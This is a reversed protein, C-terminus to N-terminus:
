GLVTEHLDGWRSPCTVGIADFAVVLLQSDQIPRRPITM